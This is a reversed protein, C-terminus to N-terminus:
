QKKGACFIKDHPSNVVYYEKQSPEKESADLMLKQGKYMASIPDFKFPNSGELYSIGSLLVALYKPLKRKEGILQPNEDLHDRKVFSLINETLDYHIIGRTGTIIIRRQNFGNVYKGLFVKIPVGIDTVLEIEAYSEAVNDIPIKREKSLKIYENCWAKKVDNVGTISGVINELPLIPAIAHLGLDFIMGGGKRYDILSDSRHDVSGYSGEGELVESIVQLPTGLIEPLIGSFDAIKFDSNTNNKVTLVGNGIGCGSDGDFYFSENKVLGDALILPLGKISMYYELLFLDKPSDSILDGLNSMQQKNVFYPKEIMVAPNSVSNKLIELADPTHLDNSHSLLVLPNEAKGLQYNANIIESLNQNPPDRIIIDDFVNNFEIKPIPKIGILIARDFVQWKKMVSVPEAILNLYDGTGIVYLDAFKRAVEM